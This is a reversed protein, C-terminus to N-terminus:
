SKVWVKESVKESKEEFPDSLLPFNSVAVRLLCDFIHPSLETELIRSRSLLDQIETM